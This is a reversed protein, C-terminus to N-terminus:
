TMMKIVMVWIVMFVMVLLMVIVEVLGNEGYDSNECGGHVGYGDTMMIEGYGVM